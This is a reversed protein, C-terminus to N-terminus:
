GLDPGTEHTELLRHLLSRARSLQRARATEASHEGNAGALSRRAWREPLYENLLILCWCLGFLPYLVHFRFAFVGQRDGFIARAGTLFRRRLAPPLDMGPHLLFDAVLKAPDDWGFYEFDLFTVRGDAGRVANHFGFDSPSLTRESIALPAGFDMGAEAYATRAWAAVAASAPVFEDRLFRVLHPHDASAHHLRVLRGEIQRLVEAPAFASASAPPLAEAGEADVLARLEALLRLAADIDAEVPESVPSGEVWTYAAMGGERSEAVVQPVASVHFRELFRLAATEAGLRDRPDADQHPYLKLAVPGGDTTVRYVRNNGGGAVPEAGYVASDLMMAAAVGVTEPTVAVPQPEIPTPLASAPM